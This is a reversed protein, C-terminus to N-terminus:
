KNNWYSFNKKTGSKRQAALRKGIGEDNKSGNSGTDPNISSGTGKQGVKSKDDGDVSFWLAYKTKMEGIITKFDGGSEAIKASALTVVDDVFQSKVGLMMAEAKAEAIIARHEAEELKQSLEDNVVSTTSEQQQTNDLKKQSGTLAKVLENTRTDDPDIGLENYVSNRGQKKERAMMRSVDDQTFTRGGNSNSSQQSDDNNENGTGQTVQKDHQTNDDSKTGSQNSQGENQDELNKPNQNPM